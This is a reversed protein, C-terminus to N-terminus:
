LSDFIVKNVYVLKGSSYLGICNVLSGHVCVASYYLWLAFGIYIYISYINHMYPRTIRDIVEGQGIFLISKHETETWSWSVSFREVLSALRTEGM